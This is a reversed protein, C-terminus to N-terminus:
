GQSNKKEEEKRSLSALLTPTPNSLQYSSCNPKGKGNSSLAQYNAHNSVTTIKLNQVRNWWKAILSHAYAVSPPSPIKIKSNCPFKTLGKKL